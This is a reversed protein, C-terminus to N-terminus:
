PCQYGFKEIEFRCLETILAKANPAQSFMESTSANRPRYQGKAKIQAFIEALGKLEPFKQELKLIDQHISEYRIYFDIVENGGIFYQELNDKFSERHSLCFNEFDVSSYETPKKRWFYRSVAMDYPNRVISIKFSQTWLAHGLRQKALKTSIHNWYKKTRRRRIFDKLSSSDLTMLSELPTMFSNQAGRFGLNNRTIEDDKSIPTIISNQDAFKSLAIEFSTGAM